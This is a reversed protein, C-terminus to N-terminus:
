KKTKKTKPPSGPEKKRKGAEMLGEVMNELRNIRGAMEDIQDQYGQHDHKSEDSEREMLMRVEGLIKREVSPTM